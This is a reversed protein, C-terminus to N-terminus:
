NKSKGQIGRSWGHLDLGVKAFKRISGWEGARKTWQGERTKDRNRKKQKIWTTRKAM